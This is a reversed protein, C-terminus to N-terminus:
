RTNRKFFEKQFILQVALQQRVIMMEDLSYRNQKFVTFKIVTLRIQSQAVGLVLLIPAGSGSISRCVFDSFYHSCQRTPTERFHDSRIDSHFANM